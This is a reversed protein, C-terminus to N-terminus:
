SLGFLRAVVWFAFASSVLGLVTGWAVDVLTLETGWSRLTAQNSLDYTAYTFLGFLAGYAIAVLFSQTKLAPAIAFIVLGLPYLAYFALAAHLNVTPALLDGLMPRYFRPVMAGLWVMDAAVFMVLATVYSVVATGISISGLM